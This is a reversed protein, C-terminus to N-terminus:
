ASVKADVARALAGLTEDGLLCFAWTRSGVLAAERARRRADEIRGDLEGLQEARRARVDSLLRHLEDFLRRAERSGRSLAKALEIREVLDAKTLGAETDGLLRPDHRARHALWVAEDVEGASGPMEGFDVRTSATVVGIPALTEGLWATLWAGTINDYGKSGGGGTGHIFLECGALRLMGTMMLGRPVLTGEVDDLEDSWVRRRESGVLEWLPLEFSTGGDREGLQAVGTSPQAAAAVNFARVCSEPDDGMSRVLEGFLDTGALASAVFLQVDDGPADILSETARAVQMALSPEDRAGAMASRVWELAAAVESAAFSEGPGLVPVPAPDCAEILGTPAGAEGGHRWSREVLVGEADRVPYTLAGADNTDQDVVVWAPAAGYRASAAGIALRKALIGGHWVGAQHGSMVIPRDTPLGIQERFRAARESTDRSALADRWVAGAPEVRVDDVLGGPGDDTLCCDDAHAVGGMM